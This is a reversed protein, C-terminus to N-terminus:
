HLVLDHCKLSKCDLVQDLKYENMDINKSCLFRYPSQYGVGSHIRKFNYFKVFRNFTQQAELLRSFENRQCVVKEIISHYSEIHANQEPTAPKCFEQTIGKAQFYHQVTQAIFQSGNDCRVHFHKPLPYQDFVQDFLKIVDQQRIQWALYHGVIWRTSVDIITLLLANRNLGAIYIYKIDFELYDFAQQAPPLLQKVWNRSSKKRPKFRSLLGNESMLRYVKKPNIVYDFEQRLYHTTKLYGYDVFEQGLLEKIQEIVKQNDVSGGNKLKTSQSKHCGKRSADTKPKFYYSSKPVGSTNLVLTKQYGQAIFHDAIMKRDEM